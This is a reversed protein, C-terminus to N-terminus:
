KFNIFDVNIFQSNTIGEHRKYDLPAKNFKYAIKHPYLHVSHRLQNLCQAVLRLTATEIGMPTM